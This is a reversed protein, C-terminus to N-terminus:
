SHLEQRLFSCFDVVFMISVHLNWDAEAWPRSASSVTIRPCHTALAEFGLQNIQWRLGTIMPLCLCFSWPLSGVCRSGSVVSFLPFNRTTFVYLSFLIVSIVNQERVERKSQLDARQNACEKKLCPVLWNYSEQNCGGELWEQHCFRPMSTVNSWLPHASTERVSWKYRKTSTRNLVHQNM